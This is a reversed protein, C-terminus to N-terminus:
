FCAVPPAGSLLDQSQRHLFLADGDLVANRTLHDMWRPKLGMIFKAFPPLLDDATRTAFFLRSTTPTVPVPRLQLTIGEKGQWEEEPAEPNAASCRSVTTHWMHVHPLQYGNYAVHARTSRAAAM